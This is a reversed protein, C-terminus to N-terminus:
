TSSSSSFLSSSASRTMVAEWVFDLWDLESGLPVIDTPPLLGGGMSRVASSSPKSGGVEIGDVRVITLQWLLESTTSKVESGFQSDSTSSRVTSGLTGRGDAPM